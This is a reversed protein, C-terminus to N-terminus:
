REDHPVDVRTDRPVGRPRLVWLQQYGGIALDRQAAQPDSARLAPEFRQLLAKHSYFGDHAKLAEAAGAESKHYDALVEFLDGGHGHEAHHDHVRDHVDSVHHAAGITVAKALQSSRRRQAHALYNHLHENSGPRSKGTNPAAPLVAVHHSGVALEAFQATQGSTWVKAHDRREHADDVASASRPRMCYRHGVVFSQSECDRM